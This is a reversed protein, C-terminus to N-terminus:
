YPKASRIEYTEVKMVKRGPSTIEVPVGVPAPTRNLGGFHNFAPSTISTSAAPIPRSLLLTMSSFYAAVYQNNKIRLAGRGGDHLISLPRIWGPTKARWPPQAPPAASGSVRM